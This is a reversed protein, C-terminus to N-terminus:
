ATDYQTRYVLSSTRSGSLTDIARSLVLNVYLLLLALALPAAALSEATPRAVSYLDLTGPRPYVASSAYM